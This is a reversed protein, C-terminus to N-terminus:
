RAAVVTNRLVGIQDVEAEMVDGPRMYEPPNRGMGVGSPTGTSVVTGPDVTQGLSLV